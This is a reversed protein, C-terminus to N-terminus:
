LYIQLFFICLILVGVVVVFSYVKLWIITPEPYGNVNCDITISSGENLSKITENTLISFIPKLNGTVIVSQEDKSFGNFAICNFRKAGILCNEIILKIQVSDSQQNEIVFKTQMQKAFKEGDITNNLIQMIAMLNSENTSSALIQGNYIWALISIPNGTANCILETRDPKNALCSTNQSIFDIKM